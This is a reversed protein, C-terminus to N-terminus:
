EGENMGGLWQWWPVPTQDIRPTRHNLAVLANRASEIFDCTGGRFDRARVRRHMKHELAIGNQEPAIGNQELAIGNQEPSFGNLELDLANLQLYFGNLELDIAGDGLVVCIVELQLHIRELAVHSADLM